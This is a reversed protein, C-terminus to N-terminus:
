GKYELDTGIFGVDRFEEPNHRIIYDIYSAVMHATLVYGMPNLHGGMYFKRRFEEDYVPGYKYFDLVYTNDFLDSLEFLIERHKETKEKTHHNGKENMMTMLFFKARPQIKKLRQIIQAYYGMFTKANKTYDEKCIGDISGYEMGANHIDNVGLAIIYCQCAFQPDWFRMYDAFSECYEKATMGGRSFNFCKSGCIRALNQGWSYEFYDHYAKNGNEDLSEFEGSSLSDGVVGIKRFIATYGGNPALNELPKEDNAFIMENINM